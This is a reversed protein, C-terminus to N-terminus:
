EKHIFVPDSEGVGYMLCQCLPAQKLTICGCPQCSARVPLQLERHKLLLWSLLRQVVCGKDISDRGYSHEVRGGLYQM